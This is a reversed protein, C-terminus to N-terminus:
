REQGPCALRWDAPKIITAPRDARLPCSYDGQELSGDTVISLRRSFTSVRTYVPRTRVVEWAATPDGRAIREMARSCAGRVSRRQGPFAGDSRGRSKRGVGAVSSRWLSDSTITRGAQASRRGLVLPRRQTPLVSSVGSFGSASRRRRCGRMVGATICWPGAAPRSRPRFREGATRREPSSLPRALVHRIWPVARASRGRPHIRRPRWVANHSVFRAATHLHGDSLETPPPSPTPPRRESCAAM